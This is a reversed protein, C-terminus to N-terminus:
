SLSCTISKTKIPKKEKKIWKMHLVRCEVLTCVRQTINNNLKMSKPPVRSAHRVYATDEHM